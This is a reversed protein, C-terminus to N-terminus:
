VNYQKFYICALSHSSSRVLDCFVFFLHFDYLIWHLRTWTEYWTLIRNRKSFARLMWIHEYLVDYFNECTWIICIYSIFVDLTENRYSKTSEMITETKMKKRKSFVNFYLSKRIWRHLTSFWINVGQTVVSCQVTYIYSFAYYLVKSHNIIKNNAQFASLYLVFAKALKHWNDLPKM